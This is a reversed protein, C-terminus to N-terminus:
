QTRSWKTSTMCYLTLNGKNNGVRLPPMSHRLRSDACFNLAFITEVCSLSTLSVTDLFNNGTEMFDTYKRHRCLNTTKM